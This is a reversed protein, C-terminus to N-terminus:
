SMRRQTPSWCNPVHNHVSEPYNFTMELRRPICSGWDILSTHGVQTQKGSHDEVAGLSSEAQVNAATSQSDPATVYNPLRAGRRGTEQYIGGNRGTDQGPKKGTTM